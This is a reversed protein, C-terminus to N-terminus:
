EEMKIPNGFVDTFRMSYPKFWPPRCYTSFCQFGDEYVNSQQCWVMIGPRIEAYFGELSRNLTNSLKTLPNM